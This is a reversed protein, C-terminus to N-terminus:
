HSKSDHENFDNVHFFSVNLLQLITAFYIYLDEIYDWICLPM